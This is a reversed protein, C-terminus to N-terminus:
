HDPPPDKPPAPVPVNIPVWYTGDPAKGYEVDGGASYRSSKGLLGSTTGKTKYNILGVIPINPAVLDRGRSSRLRPKNAYSPAPVLRFGSYNKTLDDEGKFYLFRLTQKKMPQNTAPVDKWYCLKFFYNTDQSTLAYEVAKLLEKPSKCPLAPPAAFTSHAFLLLVPWFISARPFM